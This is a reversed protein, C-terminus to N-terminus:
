LIKGNVASESITDDNEHNIYYTFRYQRGSPNDKSYYYGISQQKIKNKAYKLADKDYLFYKEFMLRESLQKDQEKQTLRTPLCVIKVGYLMKKQHDPIYKGLEYDKLQSCEANFRKYFDYFTEDKRPTIDKTFDKPKVSGDKQLELNNPLFLDSM